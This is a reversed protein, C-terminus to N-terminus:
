LSYYVPSWIVKCFSTGTPDVGGFRFEDPGPQLRAEALRSFRSLTGGLSEGNNKIVTALRTNIQVWEDHALSTELEVVWGDGAIYPNLIPGHIEAIFPAEKRGGINTVGQREGSAELVLPFTSPLTLGGDPNPTFSLHLGTVEEAYYNADATQFFGEAIAVGQRLMGNPDFALDRARGYVHRTRGGRTYRLISQQGPKNRKSAKRFAEALDELADLAAASSEEEAVVNFSFTWRPGTLYDRGFFTNDGVPNVADQSRVQAASIDYRAVFIPGFGAGGFRFGDLEFYGEPLDAM